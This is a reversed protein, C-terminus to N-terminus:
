ERNREVALESFSKTTATTSGTDPTESTEVRTSRAVEKATTVSL